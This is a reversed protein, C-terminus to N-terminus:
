PEAARPFRPYIASGVRAFERAPSPPSPNGTPPDLHRFGTIEVETYRVRGGGRAALSDRPRRSESVPIVPDDRDHLLVVLPARLDGLPV